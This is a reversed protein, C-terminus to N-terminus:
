ANHPTVMFPVGVYSSPRQALWWVYSHIMCYLAVVDVPCITVKASLVNGCAKALM